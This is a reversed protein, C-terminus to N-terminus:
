LFLILRGFFFYALIVSVAMERTKTDRCTTGSGCCDEAKTQAYPTNHLIFCDVCYSVALDIFTSCIMVFMVVVRRRVEQKCKILHPLSTAVGWLQVCCYARDSSLRGM